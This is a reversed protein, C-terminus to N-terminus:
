CTGDEKLYEHLRDLLHDVDAANVPEVAYAVGDFAMSYRNLIDKGLQVAQELDPWDLPAQEQLKTIDFFYEKDFHAQFKNRWLKFNVLADFEAIRQRDIRITELTIFKRARIVFHDDSFRGRRQLERVDFLERNHEAFTLFNLIGRKGRKAFLKDVWTIIAWFLADATTSFFAPALDMEVLRDSKRDFLRQYVRSYAALRMLERRLSERYKEFHTEAKKQDNSRRIIRNKNMLRVM